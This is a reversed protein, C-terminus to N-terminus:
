EAIRSTPAFHKVLRVRRGGNEYVVENMFARMLLLGRGCPCDLMAPDGPAPLCSVDFGPGEDEVVIELRSPVISISVDIRRGAYPEIGARRRVEDFFAGEGQARLESDIELNGHFMANSVAEQVAICTRTIETKDCMGVFCLMEQLFDVLPSFLKPDNELCFFFRCQNLRNMLRSRLRQHDSAKLVEAVTSRLRNGLVRKPVYSAAGAELAQIALEESGQSTVLVVPTQSYKAHVARVLELGNLEPMVLDTVILDYRSGELRELAERGNEAFDIAYRQEEALLGAILRRDVPSDDVVLVKQM